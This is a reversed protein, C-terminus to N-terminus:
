FEPGRLHHHGQQLVPWLGVTGLLHHEEILQLLDQIDNLRGLKDLDLLWEESLQGLTHGAWMELYGM